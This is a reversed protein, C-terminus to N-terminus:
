VAERPVVERDPTLLSQVAEIATSFRSEWDGSLTVFPLRRRNLEARCANMFTVRKQADPFYRTGDDVWPVDIDTLLYLDATEKFSAFWPDRYGVLMESWVATLVPDTDMILLRNAQRALARALADQGRAIRLLDDNKCSTGFLETYARAYEPVEITEFHKALHRSLTSKGTSEPGFVCVRKLFYPRVTSPILDWHSHPATRIATGSAPIALRQPDVPIFRAGVETALREGYSESAFVFDLPEPHFRRVIDRWIPWFDPHESPEQLVDETLHSVRCDPFMEKMWRFRLAGPIPERDLSCVLITISDAYARAFDCLLVHGNHPPLFKGLIFGRTV